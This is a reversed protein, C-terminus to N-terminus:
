IFVRLRTLICKDEQQQEKMTLISLAHTNRPSYRTIHQVVAWSSAM